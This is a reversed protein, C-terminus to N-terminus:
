QRELTQLIIKISVVFERIHLVWNSEIYPINQKSSLIPEEVGSILQIYNINILLAKGLNSDSRLHSIILDLKMGMMETFLHRINFGGYEEPGFILDRPTSHDYGMASLFKDITYKQIREINELSFSAAPLGYKMAPFYMMNFAMIIQKRSLKCNKIQFGFQDSKQKLRDMHNIDDGVMNKDVGLTRRGKTVEKQDITVMSTSTSQCKVTIQDCVERQEKIMTPIANGKVDFRWAMIYYFCKKLELKGGTAELLEKWAILDEKLAETLLRIDNCKNSFSNLNTFLSTDDVFGDIWQILNKNNDVADAMTM